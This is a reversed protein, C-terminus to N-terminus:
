VVKSDAQRMLEDLSTTSGQRSLPDYNVAIKGANTKAPTAAAKKALASQSLINKPTIITIGPHWWATKTGNPNPVHDDYHYETIAEIPKGDIITAVRKGIPLAKQLAQRAFAQVAVTTEKPTLVRYGVPMPVTIPPKGKATSAVPVEKKQLSSELSNIRDRYNKAKAIIATSPFTRDYMGLGIAWMEFELRLSEAENSVPKLGLLYTEIAEFDQAASM